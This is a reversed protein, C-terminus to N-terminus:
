INNDPIGLLQEVNELTYATKQTETTKITENWGHKHNLKTIAALPNRGPMSLQSDLSMENDIKIKKFLEILDTNVNESNLLNYFKNIYINAICSFSYISIEMNNINCLSIYINYLNNIKTINFIKNNNKYIYFYDNTFNQKGIESLFFNFQQLTIKSKEIEHIQCFNEFESFLFSKFDAVGADTELDVAFNLFDM